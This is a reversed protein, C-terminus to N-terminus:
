LNVRMTITTGEGVVTEIEMSDTNFASLATVALGTAAANGTIGNEDISSTLIEIATDCVNKVDENTDCYPALALLM